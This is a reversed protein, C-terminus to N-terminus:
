KYRPGEVLLHGRGLHKKKKKKPTSKKAPAPAPAPRAQLQKVSTYLNDIADKQAAATTALQTLVQKQTQLDAALSKNQSDLM